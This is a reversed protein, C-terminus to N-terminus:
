TRALTPRSSASAGGGGGLGGGGGGPGAGAGGGGAGGAGGARPRGLQDAVERALAVAGLSTRDMAGVQHEVFVLIM